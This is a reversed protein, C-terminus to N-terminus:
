EPHDANVMSYIEHSYGDKKPGSKNMEAYKHFMGNETTASCGMNNGM